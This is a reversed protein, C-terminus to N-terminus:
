LNFYGLFKKAPVEEPHEAIYQDFAAKTAVEDWDTQEENLVQIKVGKPTTLYAIHEVIDM